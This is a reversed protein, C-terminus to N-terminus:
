DDETVNKPYVGREMFVKSTRVALGKRNRLLDESEIEARGLCVLEDKLTFVAVTDGIKIGSEVKSVGPRGLFAGHCLNDVVNDFVWVRGLHSVAEEMTFVLKRIPKEDGKKWFEYADKLDHLSCWNDSNFIGVRTRVLEQMHAGCGLQQGFDHILKRIYTGAECGVRFLVDKGDIELITLYYIERTRLVRKIASKKPPLQEMKGVFSMMVERIKEEDVDKHLKMYAVYEKGTTLLM